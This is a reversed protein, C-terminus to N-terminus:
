CEHLANEGGLFIFERIDPRWLTWCTKEHTDTTMWRAYPAEATDEENKKVMKVDDAVNEM